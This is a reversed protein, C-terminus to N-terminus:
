KKDGFLISDYMGPLLKNIEQNFNKGLEKQDNERKIVQHRWCLLILKIHLLTLGRYLLRSKLDPDGHSLDYVCVDINGYFLSNSEITIKASGSHWATFDGGYSNFRWDTDESKVLKTFHAIIDSITKKNQKSM